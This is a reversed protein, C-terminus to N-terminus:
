KKGKERYAHYISYGLSLIVMGLLIMVIPRKLFALGYVGLSKHLYDEALPGLIFGLILPARPYKWKKMGYGLLGFLVALAVYQWHGRILFAGLSALVLIPPILLSGRLFALRGIYGSLPYLT